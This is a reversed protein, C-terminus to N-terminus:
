SRAPAAPDAGTFVQEVDTDSGALRWFAAAIRDPDFAGGPAIQGAVTLTRVRVGRDAVDAALLLAATRLASKGLSLVGAAASPHLALGGGTLLAAGGTAELGTMAARTAAVASLVNVNMARGLTGVDTDILPGGAAAANYVLVGIPVRDALTAVASGIADPEAADAVLTTATGGRGVIETALAQLPGERRAVLGIDYGEGALLLALSRGLGDGAGIVVAQQGIM